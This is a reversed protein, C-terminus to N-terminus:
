LLGPCSLTRKSPAVHIHDNLMPLVVMWEPKPILGPIFNSPKFSLDLALKFFLNDSTFNSIISLNEITDVSKQVSISELSPFFM